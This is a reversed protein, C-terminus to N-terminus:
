KGIRILLPNSTVRGQWENDGIACDRSSGHHQEYILFVVYYFSPELWEILSPMFMVGGKEGLQKEIYENPEFVSIKGLESYDIFGQLIPPTWDECDPLRLIRLHINEGLEWRNELIFTPVRSVNKVRLKITIVSDSGVSYENKDSILELVLGNVEQGPNSLFVPVGALSIKWEGEEKVFSALHRQGVGWDYNYRCSISAYHKGCETYEEPSLMNKKPIGALKSLLGAIEKETSRKKDFSSLYPRIQKTDGTTANKILTEVITAISSEQKLKAGSSITSFISVLVLSINIIRILM